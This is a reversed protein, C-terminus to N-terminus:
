DFFLVDTAIDVASGTASIVGRELDVKLNRM